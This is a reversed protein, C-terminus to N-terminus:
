EGPPLLRASRAATRTDRMRQLRRILMPDFALAAPSDVLASVIQYYRAAPLGFQERIAQEKAGVHTWWEREFVLVRQDRESLQEPRHGAPASSRHLNADGM